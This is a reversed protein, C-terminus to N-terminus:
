YQPKNVITHYYYECIIKAIIVIVLYRFNYKFLFIYIMYEKVFDFFIILWKSSKTISFLLVGFLRYISLYLINNDENFLYYTYFYSTVDVIKDKIQYDFTKTCGNKKDEYVLSYINIGDTIDLIFLLLPLIIYINEIIFKIDSLSLFYLSIITIIIRITISNNIANICEYLIYM